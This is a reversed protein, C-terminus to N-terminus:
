RVTGARYSVWKTATVCVFDFIDQLTVPLLKRSAGPLGGGWQSNHTLSGSLGKLTGPRGEIGM